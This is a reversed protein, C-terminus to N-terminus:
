SCDKFIFYDPPICSMGSEQTFQSGNDEGVAAVMWGSRVGVQGLQSETLDEGEPGGGLQVHGIRDFGASNLVM